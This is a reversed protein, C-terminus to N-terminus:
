LIRKLADPEVNGPQPTVPNEFEPLERKTDQLSLESPQTGEINILSVTESLKNIKNTRPEFQPPVPPDLREMLPPPAKKFDEQLPTPFPALLAPPIQKEPTRRAQLDEEHQDAIGQRTEIHIFGLDLEKRPNLKYSEYPIFIAKEEFEQQLQNTFDPKEIPKRGFNQPEMPPLERGRRPANQIEAAEEGRGFLSVQEKETQVDRERSLAVRSGEEVEKQFFDNPLFGELANTARPVNRLQRAFPDSPEVMTASADGQQRAHHMVSHADVKSDTRQKGAPIAEAKNALQLKQSNPNQIPVVRKVIM